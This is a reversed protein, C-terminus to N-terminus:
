SAAGPDDARTIALEQLRDHSNIGASTPVKTWSGDPHLSWALEDDALHVRLVEELREVIASDLVPTLTEVRGNLNRQMMDASGIYYDGGAGAPGFRYIRSHELYRGVISRLTITDSLGAVGPRISCM